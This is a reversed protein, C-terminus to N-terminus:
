TPGSITPKDGSATRRPTGPRGAGPPGPRFLRTLEADEATGVLEDIERLWRRLERYLPVSGPDADLQEALRLAVACRVALAPGLPHAPDLLGDRRLAEIRRRLLKAVPESV